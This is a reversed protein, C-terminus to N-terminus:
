WPWWSASRPFRGEVIDAILETIESVNDATEENMLHIRFGWWKVEPDVHFGRAELETRAKAAREQAQVSPAAMGEPLGVAAENEVDSTM